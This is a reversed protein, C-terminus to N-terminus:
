TCQSEGVELQQMGASHQQYSNSVNPLLYGDIGACRVVDSIAVRGQQERYLYSGKFTDRWFVKLARRSNCGGRSHEFEQEMKGTIRNCKIKYISSIM